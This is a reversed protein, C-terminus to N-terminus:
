LDFKYNIYLFSLYPIQDNAETNINKKRISAGLKIGDLTREFIIVIKGGKGTKRRYLCEKEIKADKVAIIYRYEYENNPRFYLEFEIPENRCVDDFLFPTLEVASEQFINDKFIIIPKMVLSVACNIANLVNSKGGGNPGYIVSVPIFKNNDNSSSLLSDQFTQGSVAQLDLITENKYSRFNKFTFQCLMFSM